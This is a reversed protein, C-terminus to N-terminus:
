YLTGLDGLTYRLEEPTLGGKLVGKGGKKQHHEYCRLANEHMHTSLHLLMSGSSEAHKENM